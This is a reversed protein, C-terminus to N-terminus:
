SSVLEGPKGAGGVLLGQPIRMDHVACRSQRQKGMFAPDYVYARAAAAPNKADLFLRLRQVDALAEPLWIVESM